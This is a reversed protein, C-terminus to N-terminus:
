AESLRHDLETHGKDLNIAESETVWESPPPYSYCSSYSLLVVCQRVKKKKETTQSAPTKGINVHDLEGCENCEEDEEPRSTFPDEDEQKEGQDHPHPSPFRCPLAFLCPLKNVCLTPMISTCSLGYIRGLESM